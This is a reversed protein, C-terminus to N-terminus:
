PTLAHKVVPLFDALFEQTPDAGAPANNREAATLTRTVYLKYLATSGFFDSRPNDPAQWDGDVSWMWAVVLSSDGDPKNFRASWYNAHPRGSVAVTKRIEHGQMTYGLGAYCVDPTHAAIPGVAGCLMLVSVKNKTKGNEYVRSVSSAAEAIRLIRESIPQEQSTWTGFAPPVNSLKDAAAQVSGSGWRNSLSGEVLAAAILVALAGFILLSRFLSHAGINPVGTTKCDGPSGPAVAVPAPGKWNM